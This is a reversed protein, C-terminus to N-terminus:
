TAARWAPVMWPMPMQRRSAYCRDILGLTTLADAGPVRERADSAPDVLVRVQNAFAEDFEGAVAGLTPRRVGVSAEHLTLDGAYGTGSIGYDFHNTENVTWAVWGDRGTIVYRNPRAWDRSLRVTAPVDGFMLEIRCNAEVGGMADDEYSIASPSGLWWTLLDLCHTGIDQLVGAAGAVPRLFDVSRVPWTFPTGEFCDISGLPGLNGNSILRGIARTAAFHRRVMGISLRRGAEVAAAVMREGEALNPALPKECHVDIGAALAAITQEPHYRPPSAIIVLQPSIALVEPFRTLRRASPFSDGFTDLAVPDPDHAATLRLLGERELTELAPRYYLQAVAGCGVLAVHVPAPRANM